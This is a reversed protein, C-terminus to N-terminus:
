VCVRLRGKVLSSVRADHDSDSDFIGRSRGDRDLERSFMRGLHGDSIQFLGNVGFERFYTQQGQGKEV